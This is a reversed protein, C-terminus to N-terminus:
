LEEGGFRRKIPKSFQWHPLGIVRADQQATPFNKNELCYKLDKMGAMFSQAGYEITASDAEYVSVSFPAKNEVTVWVCYKVERGTILEVGKKYMAMQIDYRYEAISKQFGEETAHRTTKLDILVLNDGNDYIFDPKIRCLIGTEPEVFFGPMEAIGKSFLERAQGHESIATIVGYFNEFEEEKMVISDAPIDSLWKKKAEKYLNSSHHGEFEPLVKYKEKFRGPELIMLHVEKGFKMSASEEGESGDYDLISQLYHRPSKQIFTRLLSSSIAEHTGHYEEEDLEKAWQNQFSAPVDPLIVDKGDKRKLGETRM